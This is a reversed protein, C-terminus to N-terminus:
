PSRALRTLEPASGHKWAKAFKAELQSALSPAGILKAYDSGARLALVSELVNIPQWMRLSNYEAYALGRHSDLWTAQQLALRPSSNAAYAQMLEAHLFYLSDADKSRSELVRVAEAARGERLEIEARLILSMDNNAPFSDAAGSATDEDRIARALDLEEVQAAMWGTALREFRFHRRDLLNANKLQTSLFHAYARLDTPLDRDPDYTRIALSLGRQTSYTLPGANAAELELTHAAELASQWKGQDIAFTVDALRQELSVGLDGTPTQRALVATAAEFNRDVAYADAYARLDGKVGLSDAQRFSELAEPIRDLAMLLMGKLYYASGRDPNQASLAPELEDLGDQYRVADHYAFYAYNYFARFEDPYMAGLMKWEKLAPGPTTLIAHAADLLMAERDTLRSRNREALAFYEAAGANDNGTLRISGLGVYALAFEPDLDIAKQFFGQAVALESRKRAQIGLSYSRLADLNSTTVIELPKASALSSLPEGLERRLRGIVDDVVTLIEEADNAVAKDSYVSAHTVPDVVELSFHYKGGATSLTPLILARAGTRAAIESGLDRDVPTSTKRGMRQLTASMERESVVNVYASQQLGIRLATELSDVMRQDAAINNWDGVVVWDRQNFALAPESKFAGFLSALAIGIVAAIEVALVPPRRWLPIERWV